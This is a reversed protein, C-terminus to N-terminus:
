YTPPVSEFGHSPARAMMKQIESYPTECGIAAVDDFAGAPAVIVLLRVQESDITFSRAVDRPAFVM